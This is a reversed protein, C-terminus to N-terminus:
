RVRAHRAREGVYRRREEGARERAEDHGRVVEGRELGARDLAVDRPRAAREDVVELARVALGAGPQERAAGRPARHRADANGAVQEPVVALDVQLTRHRHHLAAPAAHLLEVASRTAERPTVWALMRLMAILVPPPSAGPSFATIRAVTSAASFRPQSHQPM